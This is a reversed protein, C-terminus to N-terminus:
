SYLSYTVTWSGLNAGDDSYGFAQVKHKGPTVGSEKDTWTNGSYTGDTSLEGFFPGGEGTFSGDLQWASAYRDGADSTTPQMQISITTEITCSDGAPCTLKNVPDLATLAGAALSGGGGSEIYTGLLTQKPAEATPSAAPTNSQTPAVVSSPAGAGGALVDSGLGMAGLTVATTAAVTSAGVLSLFKWSKKNM